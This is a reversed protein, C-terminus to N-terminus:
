KLTLHKMKAPSKRVQSRSKLDGHGVKQWIQGIYDSETNGMYGSFNNDSGSLCVVLPFMPARLVNQKYQTEWDWNFTLTMHGNSFFCLNKCFNSIQVRPIESVVISEWVDKYWWPSSGSFNQVQYKILSRSRNKESCSAM